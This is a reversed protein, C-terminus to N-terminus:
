PKTKNQYKSCTDQHELFLATKTKLVINQALQSQNIYVNVFGDNKKLNTNYELVKYFQEECVKM